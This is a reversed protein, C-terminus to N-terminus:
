VMPPMAVLRCQAVVSGPRYAAPSHALTPMWPALRSPDFESASITTNPRTAPSCAAANARVAAGTASRAKNCCACAAAAGSSARSCTSWPSRTAVSRLAIPSLMSAPTPMKRWALPMRAVQSVRASSRARQRAPTRSSSRRRTKLVSHSDAMSSPPMSSTASAM